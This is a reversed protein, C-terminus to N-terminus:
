QERGVHVKGVRGKSFSRGEKRERRGKGGGTGGVGGIDRM